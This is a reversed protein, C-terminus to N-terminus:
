FTSAMLPRGCVILPTELRKVIGPTMIEQLEEFFSVAAFRGDDGALDGHVAPVLDDAIWGIGVGDEIAEDVVGM